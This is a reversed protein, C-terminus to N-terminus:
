PREQELARRASRGRSARVLSVTYIALAIWIFIFSLFQPTTVPERYIITGILLMLTPALYQFFAVHSLPVRRAGAGFLLLPIATIAGSGALLITVLPTAFFHDRGGAGIVALYIGAAPLLLLMEFALGVAANLHGIKKVLGYFGFSVALGISIWPISGFGATVVVVGVTALILASIELGRPREKLFVVGLFVNLLPTFYYGLSAEVVHDANVAWVYLLWNASVAVACFTVAAISRARMRRDKLFDRIEDRHRVVVLLGMFLASWIVRHALIEVAPVVHLWKWYFPLLGWITFALFTFIQGAVDPAASAVKPSSSSESQPM